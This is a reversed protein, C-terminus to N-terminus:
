MGGGLLRHGTRSGTSPPWSLFGGTRGNLNYQKPGLLPPMTGLGAVSRPRTRISVNHPPSQPSNRKNDQTRKKQKIRTQAARLNREMLFLFDILRGIGGVRSLRVLLEIVPSHFINLM